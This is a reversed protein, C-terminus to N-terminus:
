EPGIGNRADGNTPRADKMEGEPEGFAEQMATGIADMAESTGTSGMLNGVEELSLKPHHKHLGAWLLARVWKLRIREPDDKWKQMESSIAVIGRDLQDELQILADNNFCLVYETEGIKFPVEGKIRNAM